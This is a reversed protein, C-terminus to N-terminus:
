IRLPLTEQPRSSYVRLRSFKVMEQKDIDKFDGTTLLVSCRGALRPLLM